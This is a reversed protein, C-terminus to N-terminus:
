LGKGQVLQFDGARRVTAFVFRKEQWTCQPTTIKQDPSVDRLKKQYPEGPETGADRRGKKEVGRCSEQNKRHDQFPNDDRRQRPEEPAGGRDVPDIEVGVGQDGRDVPQLDGLRRAPEDEGPVGKCSGERRDRREQVACPREPVGDKRSGYYVNRSPLIPREVEGVQERQVPRPIEPDLDGRHAQHIARDVIM